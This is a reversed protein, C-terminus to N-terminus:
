HQRYHSQSVSQSVSPSFVPQMVQQHAPHIQDKLGVWARAALSLRCVRRILFNRLLLLSHCVFPIYILIISKIHWTQRVAKSSRKDLWTLSSFCQPWVPIKNQSVPIHWVPLKNHIQWVPSLGPHAVSSTKQLFVAPSRVCVPSVGSTGPLWKSPWQAPNLGSIHWVPDLFVPIVLEWHLRRFMSQPCVYPFLRITAPVQEQMQKHMHSVHQNWMTAKLQKCITTLGQHIQTNAKAQFTYPVSRQCHPSVAQALDRIPLHSTNNQKSSHERVCQSITHRVPKSGTDPQVVPSTLSPPIPKLQIDSKPVKWQLTLSTINGSQSVSQSVSVNKRSQTMMRVSFQWVQVATESTVSPGSAQVITLSTKDVSDRTVSQCVSQSVTVFM